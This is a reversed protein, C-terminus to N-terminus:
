RVDLEGDLNRTCIASAAVQSGDAKHSAASGAAPSFYISGCGM